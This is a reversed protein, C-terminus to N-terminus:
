AGATRSKAMPEFEVSTSSPPTMEVIQVSSYAPCSWTDASCRVSQVSDWTTASQAALASGTIAEGVASSVV